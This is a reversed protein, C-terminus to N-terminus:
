TYETVKGAHSIFKEPQAEKAGESYGRQKEMEANFSRLSDFVDELIPKLTVGTTEISFETEEGEIGFCNKKVRIRHEM